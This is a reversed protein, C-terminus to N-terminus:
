EGQQGSRLHANKKGKKYKPKTSTKEKKPPPAQTWAKVRFLDGGRGCRKVKVLDFKEKLENRKQDAEEFTKFVGASQWNKTDM